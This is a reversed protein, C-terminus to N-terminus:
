PTASIPKLTTFRGNAEFVPGSPDEVTVLTGDPMKLQFIQRPTSLTIKQGNCIPICWGSGVKMLRAYLEKCFAEQSASELTEPPGGDPVITCIFVKEPM